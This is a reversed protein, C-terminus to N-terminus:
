PSVCTMLWLYLRIWRRCNIICSFQSLIFRSFSVLSASNGAPETTARTYLAINDGPMSRDKCLTSLEPNLLRFVDATCYQPVGSSFHRCAANSNKKWVYCLLRDWKDYSVTQLWKRKMALLYPVWCLSAVIDAPAWRKQLSLQFM